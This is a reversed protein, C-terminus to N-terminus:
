SYRHSAYKWCIDWGIHNFQLLILNFGAICSQYPVVCAMYSVLFSVLAEYFISKISNLSIRVSAFVLDFQPIGTYIVGIM